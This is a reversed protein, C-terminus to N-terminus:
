AWDRLALIVNTRTFSVGDSTKQPLYQLLEDAAAAKTKNRKICQCALRYMGEDNSIWLAVNWANYNRHGNYM